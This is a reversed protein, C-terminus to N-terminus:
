RKMIQIISSTASLELSPYTTPYTPLVVQIQSRPVLNSDKFCYVKHVLVPYSDSSTDHVM